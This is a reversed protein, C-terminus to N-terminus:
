HWGQRKSTCHAPMGTRSSLFPYNGSNVMIITNNCDFRGAAGPTKHDVPFSV